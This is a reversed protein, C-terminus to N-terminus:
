ASWGKGLSKVLKSAEAYALNWNNLFSSIQQAREEGQVDLHFNFALQIAQSGQSLTVPKIDLKLRGIKLNKSLYCGFHCNKERFYKAIPNDKSLFYKQEISNVDKPNIPVLLWGMNFGVAQYPTHPLESVIRGLTRKLIKQHNAVKDEVNSFTIQIREPVVMLTFDKCGATVALPTFLTSLNNLDSEEIIEQKVLWVQTFITPNLNGAAIVATFGTPKPM